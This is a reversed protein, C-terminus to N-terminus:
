GLSFSLVIECVWGVFWGVLWVFLCFGFIHDHCFNGVTCLPICHIILTGPGWNNGLEKRWIHTHTHTHTHIFEELSDLCIKIMHTYIFMREKFLHLM